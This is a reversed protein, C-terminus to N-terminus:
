PQKRTSHKRTTQFHYNKYCQSLPLVYWINQTDFVKNLLKVARNIYHKKYSGSKEDKWTMLLLSTLSHISWPWRKGNILWNEQIESLDCLSTKIPVNVKDTRQQATLFHISLSPWLWLFEAQLLQLGALFTMYLGVSFGVSLQISNSQM